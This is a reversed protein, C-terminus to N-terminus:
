KLFYKVSDGESRTYLHYTNAPAAVWLVFLLLRPLRIYNFIRYELAKVTNKIQESNVALFPCSFCM